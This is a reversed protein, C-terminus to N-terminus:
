SANTPTHAGEGVAGIGDLTPIGLGATINGDSGGGVSAERLQVGLGSALSCAKEYLTCGQRTRELPPRNLGGSVEIRCRKDAM